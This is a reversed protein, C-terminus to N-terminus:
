HLFWRLFNSNSNKKRCRMFYRLKVSNGLTSIKHFPMIETSNRIFWGFSHPFQANGCFKWVLFNPSTEINLRIIPRLIWWILDHVYSSHYQELPQLLNSSINMCIIMFIYKENFNSYKREWSKYKRSFNM